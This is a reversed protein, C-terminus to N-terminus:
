LGSATFQYHFEYGNKRAIEEVASRIKRCDFRYEYKKGLLKSQEEITGSRAGSLTNHTEKKFGFGPTTDLDSGSLGAGSEKLMETFQVCKKIDDIQFRAKYELKQRALFAKREAVLLSIEYIGKKEQFNGSISQIFQQIEELIPM